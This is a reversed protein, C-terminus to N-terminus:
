WPPGYWTSYSQLGYAKHCIGYATHRLRYATHCLGSAQPRLGYAKYAYATHWIGYATYAIPRLIYIPGVNYLARDPGGPYVYGPTSSICVPCSSQLFVFLCSSQFFVMIFQSGPLHTAEHFAHM